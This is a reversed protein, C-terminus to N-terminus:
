KQSAKQSRLQQWCMAIRFGDSGEIPLMNALAYCLNALGFLHARGSVALFILNSLPGAVAVLLDQLPTGHERVTYLGKNWKMGVNKIRLGLVFAAILHGGEHLLMALVGLGMGQTFPFLWAVVAM